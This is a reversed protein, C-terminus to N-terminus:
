ENHQPKSLSKIIEEYSKGKEREYLINEKLIQEKQDVATTYLKFVHVVVASLAAIIILYLAEKHRLVFSLFTQFTNLDMM